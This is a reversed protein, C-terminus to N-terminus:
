EQLTNLLNIWLTLDIATTTGRHPLLQYLDIAISYSPPYWLPILQMHSMCGLIKSTSFNAHNRLDSCPIAVSIGTEWLTKYFICHTALLKVMFVLLIQKSSFKPLVVFRVGLIKPM